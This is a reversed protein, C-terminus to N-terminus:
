NADRDALPGMRHGTVSYAQIPQPRVAHVHSAAHSPQYPGDSQCPLLSRGEGEHELDFDMKMQM